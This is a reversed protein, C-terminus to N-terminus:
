RVRDNVLARLHQADFPKEVRQNPVLDLFSRAAPTFAGGTLFIVRSAQEPAFEALAAHLEMGTMQPMMLDCLIVDFTEGGRIRDLAQKAEVTTSVDHDAALTRAIVTTILPEDDIVLVRARRSAPPVTAVKLRRSVPETSTAAALAVTFTTGRGLESTVRIDGGLSAVIRQCIALGLGTGVGPGKTTFFPRFLHPLNAEPIGTGSDSVEAVVRGDDGMRTSVRISHAGADGEPIAQAANVILNLFVQGLRSESAEVLPIPRFDKIVRARHRIENWAMRLSSDLVKQLDVPGTRQEEHRSFIRLDRVIQRVRDAAERADNLMESLETEDSRGEAEAREVLARQCLDLNALVCALPNNIEHAVGAALMGVSALRDSEMLQSQTAKDRTVDRLVVVGGRAVGRDDRWPRGNASLWVGAAEGERRMFFELGDMQEGRMARALPLQDPAIPTLTDSDYITAEATGAGVPAATAVPAFIDRAAKNSLILGGDGDVVGVGDGISELVSRLIANQERAARESRERDGFAKAVALAQGIQSAVAHAFATRHENALEESKSLMVLAGLADDRYSMPVLLASAAGTNALLSQGRADPADSRVLTLPERREILQDLLEREGFFTSLETESWSESYGFSIVRLAGAEVLYLAGLSIGGADFCAALTHRLAEDIDEHTALADSIGKLVSMEAALMACRQTVGANLAVQRELQRMMRGMHEQEVEEAPAERTAGLPRPELSERLADILERLDPTRIILDHAGMKRALERDVPEVYSNTTLVIPTDRLTPDRRMELCLHFGDLRPMLVDSLVADPRKRRAEALAEMGDAAVAVEFGLRQMKYAVMKRQVADDDAVVIRRGRGLPSVQAADSVGLHTRVVQALRSPEVPKTVLDDFGAASIRGEDAPSLMGSFVLIPVETGNPLARLRAVLDYGDIDPLCLDQLVLDVKEECFLRIATAGDPAHLVQLGQAALTTRVLKLTIPNDEVLLITSSM